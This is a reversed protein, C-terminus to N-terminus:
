LEEKYRKWMGEKIKDGFEKADRETLKSKSVLSEFVARQLKKSKSFQIEFLKLAIIEKILSSLDINSEEAQQKLEDPINICVEAM